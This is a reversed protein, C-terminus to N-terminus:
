ETEYPLVSLIESDFPFIHSASGPIWSSCATKYIMSFNFLSKLVDKHNSILHVSMVMPAPVSLSVSLFCLHSGTWTQESLLLTSLLRLQGQDPYTSRKQTSIFSQLAHAVRLSTGINQNLLSVSKWSGPLESVVRKLETSKTKMFLCIKLYILAVCFM